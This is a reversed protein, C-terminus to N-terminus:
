LAWERKKIKNGEKKLEKLKQRFEFAQRDHYSVKKEYAQKLMYREDANM